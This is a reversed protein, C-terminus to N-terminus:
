VKQAKAFEKDSRKQMESFSVNEIHTAITWRHGFPDVLTGTRDGYFQDKVDMGRDVKAGAAIASKFVEDVNDVYVCLGVPSGGLTEPAKNGWEPMEEALMVISDGIRIEAHGIVNGPMMLRGIEIAGFANKYFEIAKAADRVNIYVVVSHYSHPIAKSKTM